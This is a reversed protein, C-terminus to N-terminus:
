WPVRPDDDGGSEQSVVLGACDPCETHGRQFTANCSTCVYSDSDQRTQAEEADGPELASRIRDLLGM